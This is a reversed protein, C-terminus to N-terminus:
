LSFKKITQMTKDPDDCYCYVFKKGKYKVIKELEIFLEDVTSANVTKNNRGESVFFPFISYVSVDERPNNEFYPTFKYKTNTYGKHTVKQTFSDRGTFIDLCKDIEEYYLSWAFWGHEMPYLNSMFTTTANTTTSPYTTTLYEKVHSRIFSGEELNIEIPNKGLGDFIIFIVDEYDKVLEDDLIKLTSKDTKVGLYKSFSSSINIINKEFDPFILKDLEKKDQKM